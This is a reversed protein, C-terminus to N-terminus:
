DEQQTLKHIVNQEHCFNLLATSLVVCLKETMMCSFYQDLGECKLM